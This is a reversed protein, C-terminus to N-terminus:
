ELYQQFFFFYPVVSFRITWLDYMWIGVIGCTLVFSYMSEPHFPHCATEGKDIVTISALWLWSHAKRHQLPCITTKKRHKVARHHLMLLVSFIYRYNTPKKHRLSLTHLSEYERTPLQWMVPTPFQGIDFKSSFPHFLLILFIYKFFYYLELVVYKSSYHHSVLRMFYYPQSFCLWM